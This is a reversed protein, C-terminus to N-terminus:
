FTELIHTCADAISMQGRTERRGLSHLTVTGNLCSSPTDQERSFGQFLQFLKNGCSM